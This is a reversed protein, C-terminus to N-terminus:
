YRVITLFLGRESQDVSNFRQTYVGNIHRMFRSLTAHPTQVLLHYRIPMPSFGAIKLKWLEAPEQLLDLSAHYDIKHTFIKEARRDHNMVHYWADPYEIRLARAM